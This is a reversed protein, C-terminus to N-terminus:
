EDFPAAAIADCINAANFGHVCRRGIDEMFSRAAGGPHRRVVDACTATFATKFALRPFAALVEEVAGRPLRDLSDGAVDIGAGSSVLSIEPCKRAAIAGHCHLVIGDWMLDLRAQPLAFPQLLRVAADAGNIEFPGAAMHRETLGLDHLICALFLLEDDVRLREAQGLLQGFLYTRACHNFLSPTSAAYAEEIAALAAASDPIRIGGVRRPLRPPRSEIAMGM